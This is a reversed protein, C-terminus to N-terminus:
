ISANTLHKNAIYSMGSALLIGLVDAALDTFDFTRSPIFVQSAEEVIVFLLVIASGYYIQLKGVMFSKFKSGVIAALTLFGFLGFHGLKDGYPISRIFEFYISSSGMNALYIVWLIFMFFSVAIVRALNYM